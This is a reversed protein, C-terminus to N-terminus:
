EDWMKPIHKTLDPGASVYFNNMYNAAEQDKILIGDDNKVDKMGSASKQKGLGSLAYICKEM